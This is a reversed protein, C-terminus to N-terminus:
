APEVRQPVDAGPHLDAPLLADPWGQFAVPTLWRAIARGGVSTDAPATSAPWPGGHHMAWCVAVGTPWDGYILRGARPRLADALARTLEAEDPEAHIAAALSGPLVTLADVLAGVDEYTIVIGAPGFLEDTFADPDAVFAELPLRWAHAAADAATLPTLRPEAARTAVGAAFAGAIRDTLMPQTAAADLLKGIHEPLGSDAPVFLLGPNTCFQGAGLTVSGVYGTALAAARAAAAGPTIVVPNVSGLEGFFPIPEPRQQSLALLARGGSLSGTFSVARIVPDLVLACGADLGEVTTLVGDPLIGAALEAVRRATRPHGDHVKVV